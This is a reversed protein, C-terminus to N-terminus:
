GRGREAPSPRGAPVPALVLRPSNPSILRAIVDQLARYLRSGTGPAWRKRSNNYKAPM